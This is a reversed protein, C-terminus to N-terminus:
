DEQEIDDKLISYSKIIYDQFAEKKWLPAVKQYVKTIEPYLKIQATSWFCKMRREKQLLYVTVEALAWEWFMEKGLNSKTIIKLKKLMKWYFIHFLEHAIVMLLNDKDIGGKIGLFIKNEGYYGNTTTSDIVCTISRTSIDLSTIQNITKLIKNEEKNWTSEIRTLEEPDTSKSNSKFKM